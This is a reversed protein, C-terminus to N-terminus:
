IKIVVWIDKFVLGVKCAECTNAGYHFGSAKDGCIRCPPLPHESWNSSSRSSTSAADDGDCLATPSLVQVGLPSVNNSDCSQIDSNGDSTYGAGKSVPSPASRKLKAKNLGKKLKPQKSPPPQSVELVQMKERVEQERELSNLLEDLQVDIISRGTADQTDMADQVVGFNEAVGMSGGSM